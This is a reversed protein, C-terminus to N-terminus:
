ENSRSVNEKLEHYGNEFLHVLLETSEKEWSLIQHGLAFPYRVTGVPLGIHDAASHLFNTIIYPTESFTAAAAFGSSTGMFLDAKHLISLEHGLNLGLTRPIVVNKYNCLDREWETYGGLVFFRVEPHKELVIRFFRYWEDTPSDRLTVNQDELTVSRYFRRQRINVAVKFSDKYHM